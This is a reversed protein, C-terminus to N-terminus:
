TTLIPNVPSTGMGEGEGVEGEAHTLLGVDEEMWVWMAQVLEVSTRTPVWSPVSLISGPSPCVASAVWAELSSVEM